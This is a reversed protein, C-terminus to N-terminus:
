KEYSSMELNSGNSITFPTNDTLYIGDPKVNKTENLNDFLTNMCENAADTDFVDILAMGYLDTGDESGFPKGIGVTENATGNQQLLCQGTALTYAECIYDGPTQIGAQISLYMKMDKGKLYTQMGDLDFSSSVQFPCFNEPTYQDIVVGEIPM